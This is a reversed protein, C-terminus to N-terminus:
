RLAFIVQLVMENPLFPIAPTIRVLFACKRGERTFPTSVPEDMRAADAHELPLLVHDQANLESLYLMFNCYKWDQM